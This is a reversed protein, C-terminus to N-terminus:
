VGHSVARGHEDFVHVLSRRVTLALLAGVPPVPRDLVALLAHEPADPPAIEVEVESGLFASRRVVEEVRLGADGARLGADGARLGADGARARQLDHPRIGITCPRGALAAVEPRPQEIRLPGAVIRTRGAVREVHGAVLNMAPSGLFGAVFTTAPRALLELPPADQVITGDRLVVCREALLLAVEQDNTSAILTAGYGSQLRLLERLLGARRAADTNAFPEDLLLVGGRRVLARAMAVDHQEGASLHTPRRRLLRKLSFSRVEAEVRQTREPEGVGRVVLPFAVNHEVDLHGLLASEQTVMAVGRDRTAVRSVDVNDILVVGTAPLDLGAIVRLLTTKGAGSPGLVALRQGDPVELDTHHLVETGDKTVTVAVLEVSSV